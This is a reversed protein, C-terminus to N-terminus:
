DSVGIQDFIGEALETGQESSVALGMLAERSMSVAVSGVESWKEGDPSSFATLRDGRRVLRVWCPIACKGKSKQEVNAGAANRSRMLLEGSSNLGVFAHASDGDLTERIMVGGVGQVDSKGVALIRATISANGSAPKNTFRFQDLTGAIGVGGGTLTAVQKSYFSSGSAQEPDNDWSGWDAGPVISVQDYEGGYDADAGRGALALGVYANAALSVELRGIETWNFGDDSVFGTFWNGSRALKLWQPIAASKTGVSTVAMSGHVSRSEFQVGKGTELVLAVFPSAAATSDRFMVGGKGNKLASVRAIVAADGEVEQYVFQFDDFNGSLDGGFGSLTFVGGDSTATGRALSNGIDAHSWADAPHSEESSRMAMRALGEPQQYGPIVSYKLTVPVGSNLTTPLEILVTKASINTLQVSPV